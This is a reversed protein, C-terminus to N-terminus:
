RNSLVTDNRLAEHMFELIRVVVALLATLWSDLELLSPLRGFRWAEEATKGPFRLCRTKIESQPTALSSGGHEAQTPKTRRKLEISMELKENLLVDAM